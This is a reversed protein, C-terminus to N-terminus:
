YLYNALIEAKSVPCDRRCPNTSVTKYGFDAYIDSPTNKTVTDWFLLGPEAASWAADIIQDWIDKANVEKTFKANVITSDVPYRLTYKENNKVANM